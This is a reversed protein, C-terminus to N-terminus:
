KTRGSISMLLDGNVTTGNETTPFQDVAPNIEVVASGGETLESTITM